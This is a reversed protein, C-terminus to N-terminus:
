DRKRALIKQWPLLYGFVGAADPLRAAAAIGRKRLGHRLQHAGLPIIECVEHFMDTLQWPPSAWPYGEERRWDGLLRKTHYDRVRFPNPTILLIHGGPRTVRILERVLEYRAELKHVYEIVSVCTTVDFCDAEYPLPAGPDIKEFVCRDAAREYGKARVDAAQLSLENPDAGIVKTPNLKESLAMAVTTAGTGCGVDLITEASGVYTELIVNFSNVHVNVREVEREVLADYAEITLTFPTDAATDHIDLTGAGKRILDVFQSRYPERM